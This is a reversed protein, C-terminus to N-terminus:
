RIWEHSSSIPLKAHSSALSMKLPVKLNELTIIRRLQDSGHAWVVFNVSQIYASVTKLRKTSIFFNQESILPTFIAPCITLNDYVILLWIFAHFFYEWISCSKAWIRQIHLFMKQSFSILYKKNLSNDPAILMPCNDSPHPLKQLTIIRPYNDPPCNDLRWNDPPYNDPPFQRSSNEQSTLKRPPLLGPTM